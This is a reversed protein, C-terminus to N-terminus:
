PKGGVTQRSLEYSQIATSKLPLPETPKVLPIAEPQVMPRLKLADQTSLEASQKLMQKELMNAVGIGGRKVMKMAVEKDMLDQYMEMNNSEVLDSKEVTDRMSKMMQQLFYAEFQEATQRVAQTPDRSAEGKLRGLAGFDLYSASNTTSLDSM